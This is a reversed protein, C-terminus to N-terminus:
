ESDATVATPESADSAGPNSGNPSQLDRKVIKGTANRPLADLFVVERPVKFNALQSKVHSKIEAETLEAGENPVVYAILRAGFTEDEV